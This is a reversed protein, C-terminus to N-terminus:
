RDTICHRFAKQIITAADHKVQGSAPGIAKELTEDWITDLYYLTTCDEDGDCNASKLSVQGIVKSKMARCIANYVDTVDSVFVGEFGEQNSFEYSGDGQREIVWCEAFGDPREKKDGCFVFMRSCRQIAAMLDVGKKIVGLVLDKPATYDSENCVKSHAKVEDPNSWHYVVMIINIKNSCVKQTTQIV